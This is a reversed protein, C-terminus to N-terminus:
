PAARQRHSKPIRATNNVGTRHSASHTRNLRLMTSSLPLTFEVRHYPARPFLVCEGLSTLGDPRPHQPGMEECPPRPALHSSCPLAHARPVMAKPQTPPRWGSAPTQIACHPPPLFRSQSCTSLRIVSVAPLTAASAPRRCSTPMFTPTASPRGRGERRGEARFPPLPPPRPSPPTGVVGPGVTLLAM